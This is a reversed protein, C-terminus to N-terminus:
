QICLVCKATRLTPADPLQHVAPVQILDESPMGYLERTSAELALSLQMAEQLAVEDRWDALSMGPPPPVRRAARGRMAVAALCWHAVSAAGAVGCCSENMPGLARGKHM